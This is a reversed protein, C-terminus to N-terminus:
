FIITLMLILFRFAHFDFMTEKTDFGIVIRRGYWTDAKSFPNPIILWLPLPYVWNVYEVKTYVCDWVFSMGFGILVSELSIIPVGMSVFWAILFPCLTYYGLWFADTYEALFESDDEKRGWMRADTLGGLVLHVFWFL